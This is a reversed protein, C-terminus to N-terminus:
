HESQVGTPNVISVVEEGTVITKLYNKDLALYIAQRVRVDQLPQVPVAPAVHMGLYTLTNYQGLTSTTFNATTGTAASHGVAKAAYYYTTNASLGDLDVSFAGTANM